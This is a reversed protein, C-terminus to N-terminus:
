HNTSWQEKEVKYEEAANIAGVLQEGSVLHDESNGPSLIGAQQADRLAYRKWDTLRYLWGRNIPYIKMLAHALTGRDLPDAMIEQNIWGEHRAEAIRKENSAYKAFDGRIMMILDVLDQVTAVPRELIGQYQKMEDPKDASTLTGFGLAFCVSLISFGYNSKLIRLYKM